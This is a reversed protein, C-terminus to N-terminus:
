VQAQAQAILNTTPQSDLGQNAGFPVSSAQTGRMVDITRTRGVSLVGM